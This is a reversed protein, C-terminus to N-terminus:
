RLRADPLGAIDCEALPVMSVWVASRAPGARRMAACAIPAITLASTPPTLSSWLLGLDCCELSLQSVM